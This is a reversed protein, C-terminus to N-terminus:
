ISLRLKGNVRVNNKGNRDATIKHIQLTRRRQAKEPSKACTFVSPIYGSHKPDDSKKGEVHNHFSYVFSM